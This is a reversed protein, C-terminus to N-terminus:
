KNRNQKPFVVWVLTWIVLAVLGHLTIKPSAVEWTFAGNNVGGVFLLIAAVQLIIVITAFLRLRNM